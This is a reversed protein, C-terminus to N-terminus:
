HDRPRRKILEIRQEAPISKIDCHCAEALIRLNERSGPDPEGPPFVIAFLDYPLDFIHGSPMELLYSKLADTTLMKPEPSKPRVTSRGYQVRSM